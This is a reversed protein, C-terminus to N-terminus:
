ETTKATKNSNSSKAEKELAELKEDFTKKAFKSEDPIRDSELQAFKLKENKAKTETWLWLPALIPWFSAILLALVIGELSTFLLWRSGESDFTDINRIRFYIPALVFLVTIGLALYLVALFAIM